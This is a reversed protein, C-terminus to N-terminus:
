AKERKARWEVGDDFGIRFADKIIHNPVDLKHAHCHKWMMDEAYKERYSHQEENTTDYIDKNYDEKEVVELNSLIKLLKELEFNRYATMAYTHPKDHNYGFNEIYQKCARKTLFAGTHRSLKWKEEVQIVSANHINMDDKIFDLIADFDDNDIEQWRMQTEEDYDEINENIYEVAEEQSLVNECDIVIKSEGCGEPVADEYSEEVGWFVPQANGDTTQTNLEHKLDLLFELDDQSVKLYAM